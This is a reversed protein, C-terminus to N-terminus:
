ELGARERLEKESLRGPNFDCRNFITLGNDNTLHKFIEWEIHNNLLFDGVALKLGHGPGETEGNIGFPETDHMIITQNVKFAHRQLEIMAIEADHRTDIFLTNTQDIEIERSDAKEFHFDVGAPIFPKILDMAPWDNVDYSRLTGNGRCSLGHLFCVTSVGYRVGLETVNGSNAAANSLTEMHGRIDSHQDVLLWFLDQLDVADQAAKTVLDSM